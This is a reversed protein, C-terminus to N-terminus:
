LSLLSTCNRERIKHATNFDSEKFDPLLCKFDDELVFSSEESFTHPFKCDQKLKMLLPHLVLIILIIALNSLVDINYVFDGPSCIAGKTM